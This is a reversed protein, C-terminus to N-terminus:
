HPPPTTRIQSLEVRELRLPCLGCAVPGIYFENKSSRMYWYERNKRKRAFVTYQSGSYPSEWYLLRSGDASKALLEFAIMHAEKHSLKSLLPGVTSLMLGRVRRYIISGMRSGLTRCVVAHQYFGEGEKTIGLSM